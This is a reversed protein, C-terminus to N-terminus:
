EHPPIQYTWTESLTKDGDVLAARMEVPRAPDRVKVRLTLRWRAPDLSYDPPPRLGLDLLHCPFAASVCSLLSWSAWRCHSM